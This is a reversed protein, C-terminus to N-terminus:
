CDVKVCRIGIYACELTNTLFISAPLVYLARVKGAENAIYPCLLILVHRLYDFQFLVVPSMRYQSIPYKHGLGQPLLHHQERCRHRVHVWEPAQQDGRDAQVDQIQIDWEPGPAPM